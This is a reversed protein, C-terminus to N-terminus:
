RDVLEARGVELGFPKCYIWVFRRDDAGAPLRYRQAGSPQAQVGLEIDGEEPRISTGLTDRRSVVVVPGPVRSVTFDDSFRVEFNGDELMVIQASGGARYSARGTWTGAAIVAAEGPSPKPAPTPDPEGTEGADPRTVPQGRASEPRLDTFSADCAATSALLCLSLLRTATM